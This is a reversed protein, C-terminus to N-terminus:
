LFLIMPVSLFKRRTAQIAQIVRHTDIIAQITLRLPFHHGNLALANLIAEGDETSMEYMTWCSKSHPPSASHMGFPHVCHPINAGYESYQWDTVDIKLTELLEEHGFLKGDNTVCQAITYTETDSDSESSSVGIIDDLNDLTEEMESSFDAMIIDGVMKTLPQEYQLYNESWRDHNGAYIGIKRGVCDIMILARHPEVIISICRSSQIWAYDVYILRPIQLAKQTEYLQWLHEEYVSRVPDMNGDEDDTDCDYSAVLEDIPGHVAPMFKDMSLRDELSLSSYFRLPNCQSVFDATDNVPLDNIYDTVKRLRKCNHREAISQNFTTKFYDSMEEDNRTEENLRKVTEILANVAQPTHDEADLPRLLQRTKQSYRMIDDMTNCRGTPQIKRHTFEVFDSELNTYTNIQSYDSDDSIELNHLQETSMFVATHWLETEDLLEQCESGNQMAKTKEKQLIDIKNRLTTLIDDCKEIEKQYQDIEDQSLKSRETPSQLLLRLKRKEENLYLGQRELHSIAISKQTAITSYHSIRQRFRSRNNVVKELYRPPVDFYRLISEYSGSHLTHLLRCYMVGSVPDFKPQIDRIQFIYMNVSETGVAIQSSRIQGELIADYAEAESGAVEQLPLVIPYFSIRQAKKITDDDPFRRQGNATILQLMNLPSAGDLEKEQEMAILENSLPIEFANIRFLDNGLHKIDAEKIRGEKKYLEFTKRLAKRVGSPNFCESSLHGQNPRTVIHLTDDPNVYQSHPPDIEDIYTQIGSIFTDSIEEYQQKIDMSIINGLNVDGEGHFTSLRVQEDREKTYEKMIQKYDRNVGKRRDIETPKKEKKLPKTKMDPEEDDEEKSTRKRKRGRSTRSIVVDEDDKDESNADDPKPNPHDKTHSLDDFHYPTSSRSYQYNSLIEVATSACTIAKLPEFRPVLQQIHRTRQTIDVANQITEKTEFSMLHLASPSVHDVAIIPHQLQPIM